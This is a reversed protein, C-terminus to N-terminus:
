SLDIMCVPSGAAYKRWMIQYITELNRVYKETNFLTNLLVDRQISTKIKKLEHPREALYVATDEYEGVNHAVLADLKVSHLISASMRSCFHKGQLTLVPVNAWLADSTTAAGSVLATDLALDALELRRLHKKRNCRKAFVIRDPAIGNACAEALINSKFEETDELLWLLSEPVRHLINMWARFIDASIKYSTCFCCFIFKSIPLNEINRDPIDNDMELPLSNVQYCDPLYAFKETYFNSFEPPTVTSDTLLYDFFDAGTTGPMGLFRVQIPAPRFACIKLRSGFTYGKLEILIDCRDSRISKAISIDDFNQFDKFIDSNKEINKRCENHDNEGYSYCYINFRSHDHEKFIDAILHTAPHNRFGDNLYGITIKKRLKEQIGFLPLKEEREIATAIENSWSKAVALNEAMDDSRTVNIFPGEEPKVGNQLSTQTFYDIKKTLATLNKWDCIDRIQEYYSVNAKYDDPKLSLIKTTCAMAQKIKHGIRYVISLNCLASLNNPDAHVANQFCTLAEPFKGQYQIAIGLNNYAESFCNNIALAKRFLYIATNLQGTQYAVSGANYYADTYGQNLEIANEFCKLSKAHKGVDNLVLGMNNYAEALRPDIDLAKRFSSLAQEHDAIKRYTLGLANYVPAINANIKVVDQLWHIAKQYEGEEYCVLALKYAAQIHAPDIRVIKQYYKKADQLDGKAEASKGLAYWSESDKFYKKKPRVSM